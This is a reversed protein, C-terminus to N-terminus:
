NIQKVADLSVAGVGAINLRVGGGQGVTVSDVNANMFTSLQVTEGNNM